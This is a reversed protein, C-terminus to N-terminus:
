LVWAFLAPLWWGATVFALAALALVVVSAIIPVFVYRRWTWGRRKTSHDVLLEILDHLM